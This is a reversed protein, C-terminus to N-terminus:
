KVVGVGVGVLSCQGNSNISVSVKQGLIPKEYFSGRCSLSAAINDVKHNVIVSFDYIEWNHNSSNIYNLTELRGHYAVLTYKYPVKEITVRKEIIKDPINKIVEQIITKTNPDEKLFTLYFVMVSLTAIVLNQPTLHKKM